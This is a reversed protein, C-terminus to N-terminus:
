KILGVSPFAGYPLEASEGFRAKCSTLRKGCREASYIPDDEPLAAFAADFAAQAADLDDQKDDRDALAADYTATAASCGATDYGWREIQYVEYTLAGNYTELLAGIKYTSGLTVTSGGWKAQTIPGFISSPVYFVGDVLVIEGNVKSYNSRVERRAYQCAVDKAQSAASLVTEADALTTKAVQLAAYTDIVAQGEATAATTLLNNEQDYLPAGTFGCEAGRYKWICVNQVIQRRPVKVSVLDLSSALEFEVLERTESAKRDIFYVDDEFEATQDEDPNVSGPFNVADLYKLFTRKRTLKANLLDKNAMTLQTIASLFNSVVLKPRPFQGRGQYEFGTVEVPYRVYTEGKWVLNQNLKNTGAHFRLLDGGLATCDLEFLEIVSSPALKQIESTISEPASM